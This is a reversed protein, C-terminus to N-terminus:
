VNLPCNRSTNIKETFKISHNCVECFILYFFLKKISPYFASVAWDDPCMEKENDQEPWWLLLWPKNFVSSNLCKVWFSWSGHTVLLLVSTKKLQVQPIISLNWYSVPWSQGLQRVNLVPSVTTQSVRHKQTKTVILHALTLLQSIRFHLSLNVKKKLIDYFLGQLVGM